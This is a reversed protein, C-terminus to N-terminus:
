DLQCRKKCEQEGAELCTLIEVRRNSIATFFSPIPELGTVPPCARFKELHPRMREGRNIAACVLQEGPGEGVYFALLAAVAEDAAEGRTALLKAFRKEFVKTHPSEHIFRGAADFEEAHASLFESLVPRVLAAADASMQTANCSAVQQSAVAAVALWIM